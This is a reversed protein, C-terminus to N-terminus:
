LWVVMFAFWIWLCFGMCFPLLIIEFFLANYNFRFAFSSLLVELSTYWDVVNFPNDITILILRDLLSSSFEDVDMEDPM